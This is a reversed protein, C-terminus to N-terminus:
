IGWRSRAYSSIFNGGNIDKFVLYSIGLLALGSLFSLGVAAWSPKGKMWFFMDMPDVRWKLFKWGCYLTLLGLLGSLIPSLLYALGAGFLLLIISLVGGAHSEKTVAAPVPVPVAM